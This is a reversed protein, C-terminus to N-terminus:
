DSFGQREVSLPRHISHVSGFHWWCGHGEFKPRSTQHIQDQCFRKKVPSRALPLTKDVVNFIAFVPKHDSSFVNPCNQYALLQPRKILGAPAITRWLIRDAWSPTRKPNYVLGPEREMSFTPWFEPEATEFGTFVRGAVMEKHLQDTAYLAKRNEDGGDQIMKTIEKFVAEPPKKGVKGKDDTQDGYDVRYNLDGMWFFHDFKFMIEVNDKTTTCIEKFDANRRELFEQGQHAALHSSLFCLSTDRINFSVAVGGKNGVVGGLGTAENFKDVNYVLPVLRPHVFVMVHMEMLNNHKLLKFQTDNAKSIAEGCVREWDEKYSGSKPKYSTEQTAFAYVDCHPQVWTSLDEQPIANGVNWTGCWVKLLHEALSYTTVAQYQAELLENRRKADAEKSKADLREYAFMLAVRGAPEQDQTLINWWLQSNAQPLDDLEITTSGIKDDKGFTDHDFVRLEFKEEKSKVDFSFEENWVPHLCKEVRKTSKMDQRKEKLNLSLKVYPDSFGNLDKSLIYKAEVVRV